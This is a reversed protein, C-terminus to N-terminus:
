DKLTDLLQKGNNSRRFWNLINKQDRILKKIEKNMWAPHVLFKWFENSTFYYKIYRLFYILFDEDIFKVIKLIM